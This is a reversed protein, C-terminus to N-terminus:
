WFAIVCTCVIVGYIVGDIVMVGYIVIVGGFICIAYVIAIAGYILGDCQIQGCIVRVGAILLGM